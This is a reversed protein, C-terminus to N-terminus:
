VHYVTFEKLGAGLTRSLQMEIEPIRTEDETVYTFRNWHLGESVELVQEWKVDEKKQIVLYPTSIFKQTHLVTMTPHADSQVVRYLAGSLMWDLQMLDPPLCKRKWYSLEIWIGDNQKLYWEKHM